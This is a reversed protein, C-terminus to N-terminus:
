EKEIYLFERELDALREGQQYRNFFRTFQEFRLDLLVGSFYLTLDRDSQSRKSRLFSLQKTNM